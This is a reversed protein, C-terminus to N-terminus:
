SAPEATPLGAPEADWEVLEWGETPSGKVVVTGTNQLPEDRFLNNDGDTSMLVWTMISAVHAFIVPNKDGNKEVSELAEDFRAKVEDGSISGPIRASTDGEIWQQPAALYTEFADSEPTGRWTGAPIESVGPLIQVTKDHIKATPEATQQTRYLSSAYIGDFPEDALREAAADAQEHGLETLAPGPVTGDLLGSANGASQGHRVFTVTMTEESDEAEASCGLLLSVASTAALASM